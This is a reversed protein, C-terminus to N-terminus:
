KLRRKKKRGLQLWGAKVFLLFMGVAIVGMVALVAFYGYSTHLEPMNDFNMGYIGAIFTLPMFITTIVTLTMMINNMKDSNVSLYSDRVDSSFERYSELMEVLKMLHDHIDGFYIHRDEIYELRTSNLLRYLLDRMPIITRRLKSMDHRIDFLRDIINSRPNTDLEEDMSNLADEVEYVLPFYEDVLRDILRHLIATPGQRLRENEILGEWTENIENIPQQHVTVIMEKNMFVGAEKGELTRQDLSHVLFFAHNEYFDLKPRGSQNDLCDEVALPHFHFFSKLLKAEDKDPNFFDVWYWVTDAAKTEELASDFVLQGDTKLLCTTIM